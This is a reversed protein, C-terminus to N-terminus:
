TRNTPLTISASANVATPGTRPGLRFFFYEGPVVIVNRKKLKEYLERSSIPLNKFWLWLFIAGQSKHVAYDLNKPFADRIWKITDRSRNKYFPRIFNESITLIEGSRLLPETLVQGIGGNALNVIANAAAFAKVIEKRAIIIGTRVSPLGLKSLSM